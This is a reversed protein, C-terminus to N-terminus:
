RTGVDAWISSYKTTKFLMSATSVLGRRLFYKPPVRGFGRSAVNHLKAKISKRTRRAQAKNSSPKTPRTSGPMLLEYTTPTLSRSRLRWVSLRRMAKRLARSSSWRLDPRAHSRMPTTVRVKLFPTTMSTRPKYARTSRRPSRTVIAFGTFRRPGSWRRARWRRRRPREVATTVSALRRRMAESIYANRSASSSLMADLRFKSLSAGSVVRLMARCAAVARSACWDSSRLRTPLVLASVENQQSVLTRALITHVPQAM